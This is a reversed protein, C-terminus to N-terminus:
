GSPQWRLAELSDQFNIQIKNITKTKKQKKNKTKKLPPNHVM